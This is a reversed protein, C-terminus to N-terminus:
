RHGIRTRDGVHTWGAADRFHLRTRRGETPRGNEDLPVLWHFPGTEDEDSDDLHFLRGSPSRLVSTDFELDGLEEPTM